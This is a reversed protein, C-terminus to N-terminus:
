SDKKQILLWVDNYEPHKSRIRRIEERATGVLDTGMVSVRYLGSENRLLVPNFGKTKIQSQFKAANDPNRFSGLIVFYRYPDVPEKEVPVLKEEVERIPEEVVPEPTKVPEEKIIQETPAPNSPPMSKKRGKNSCAPMALVMIFTILYISNKMTLIM